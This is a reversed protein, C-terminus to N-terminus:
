HETCSEMLLPGILLAGAWMGLWLYLPNAISGPLPLSAIVGAAAGVGAALLLQWSHRRRAVSENALARSLLQGSAFGGVGTALAISSAVVLNPAMAVDVIVMAALAGVFGRWGFLVVAAMAIGVELRLGDDVFWSVSTALVALLAPLLWRLSPRRISVTEVFASMSSFGAM